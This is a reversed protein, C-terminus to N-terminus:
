TPKHCSTWGFYGDEADKPKVHDLTEINNLKIHERVVFLAYKAITKIDDDKGDKTNYHKHAFDVFFEEPNILSNVFYTVANKKPMFPKSSVKKALIIFENVLDCAAQQITAGQNLHCTCGRKCKKTEATNM